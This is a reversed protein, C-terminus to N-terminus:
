VALKIDQSWRSKEEGQWMPADACHLSLVGDELIFRLQDHERIQSHEVWSDRWDRWDQKDGDVMMEAWSGSLPTKFVYHHRSEARYSPVREIVDNAAASVPRKPVPVFLRNDKIGQRLNDKDTVHAHLYSQPSVINSADNLRAHMVMFMNDNSLGAEQAGQAAAAFFQKLRAGSSKKLFDLSLRDQELASFIIASKQDQAVERANGHPVVVAIDNEHVIKQEARLASLADQRMGELYDCLSQNAKEAMEKVVSVTKPDLRVANITVIDKPSDKASVSVPGSGNYLVTINQFESM